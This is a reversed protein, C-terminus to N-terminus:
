QLWSVKPSLLGLTQNVRTALAVGVSSGVVGVAVLADKTAVSVAVDTGGVEM